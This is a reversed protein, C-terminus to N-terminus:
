DLLMNSNNVDQQKQKKGRWVVIVIRVVLLTCSVALLVVSIVSNRKSPDWNTSISASLAWIVVPYISLTNRVYKDLITNELTFWVIVELALIVLSITSAVDQDVGHFYTIAMALNLLSAITCWTAYLAIGNNVLIQTAISDGKPVGKTALNLTMYSRALTAYLFFATAFLLFACAQIWEHSWIVIWCINAVSALSYFVHLVPSIVEPANKRFLLTLSYIIWASQWAYILGWISFAWGAPTIEIYYKGSVEGTTANGFLWNLPGDKPDTSVYNFVLVLVFVLLNITTAAIKFANNARAMTPATTGSLQRLETFSFVFFHHALTNKFALTAYSMYVLM